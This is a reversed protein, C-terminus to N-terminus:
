CHLSMFECECSLVFLVLSYFLLNNCAIRFQRSSIFIPDAIACKPMFIKRYSKVANYLQINCQVDHRSKAASNRQLQACSLPTCCSDYNILQYTLYGHLEHQWPCIDLNWQMFLIYCFLHLRYINVSAQLLRFPIYSAYMHCYVVQQNRLFGQIVNSFLEQIWPQTLRGGCHLPLM